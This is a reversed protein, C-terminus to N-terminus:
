AKVMMSMMEMKDLSGQERELFSILPEARSYGVWLGKLLLKLVTDIPVTYGTCYGVWFV